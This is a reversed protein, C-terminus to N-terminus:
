RVEEYSTLCAYHKRKDNRITKYYADAEDYDSFVKTEFMQTSEYQYVRWVVCVKEM